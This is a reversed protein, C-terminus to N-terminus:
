LGTSQIMRKKLWRKIPVPIMGKVFGRVRKSKHSPNSSTLRDISQTKLLESTEDKGFAREYELAVDLAFGPQGDVMSFIWLLVYDRRGSNAASLSEISRLYRAECWGPTKRVAREVENYDMGYTSSTLLELTSKRIRAVGRVDLDSLWFGSQTLTRHTDVFLDEGQYADILGPEVDIALIGSRLKSSLTKFIRLDTGQTDVKLWDIGTLGLRQVVADLTTARVTAEREVVFLDSYIYNELSRSDPLLTSSCYPSKTLYFRVEQRNENDTVAADVIVARRYRGEPIERIERLDPDFGVYSSYRALSDWIKPSDGSAGVDVLVPPPLMQSLLRDFTDSGPVNHERSNM